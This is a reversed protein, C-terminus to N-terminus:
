PTRRCRQEVSALPPESGRREAQPCHANIELEYATTMDIVAAKIRQAVVDPPQEFFARATERSRGPGMWLVQRGIPDVVVTAYRNGKHLAFEDMALYHIRSWDPEAVRARLRMKDISKVTHWGLDYFAAVAQVSSSQLLKECAEAFRQTVRQYRGLWDLKELRPGGCRECWVRRRPVHLAM